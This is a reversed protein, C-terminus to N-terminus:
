SWNRIIWSDHSLFSVVGALAAGLMSVDTM